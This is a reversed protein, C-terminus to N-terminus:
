AGSDAFHLHTSNCGKMRSMRIFNGDYLCLDRGLNVVWYSSLWMLERQCSFPSFEITPDPPFGAQLIVSIFEEGPVADIELGGDLFDAAVCRANGAVRICGYYVHFRTASAVAAATALILYAQLLLRHNTMNSSESCNRSPKSCQFSRSKDNVSVLLYLCFSEANFSSM